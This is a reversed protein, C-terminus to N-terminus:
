DKIWENKRAMKKWSTEGRSKIYKKDLMKLFEWTTRKTVEVYHIDRIQLQETGLAPNYNLDKEGVYKLDYASYATVEMIGYTIGVEDGKESYVKHKLSLVVFIYDPDDLYENRIREYSTINPSKGASKIDEATAKVDINASIYEAKPNKKKFQLIIDSPDLRKGAEVHILGYKNGTNDAIAEFKELAWAEVFPGAVKSINELPLGRKLNTRIFIENDGSQIADGIISGIKDLVFSSMQQYDSSEKPIRCENKSM